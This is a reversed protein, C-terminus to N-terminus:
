LFEGPVVEQMQAFLEERKKMLKSLDTKNVAGKQKFRKFNLMWEYAATWFFGICAYYAFGLWYSPYVFYHFLWIVPLNILGMIIKGMILKVSGWFVKRRFSKEVFRKVLFYPLGCHIFGLLAFPFLWTLNFIEKARSGGPNNAKWFMLNEELRFRKLLKFYGEASNKFKALSENEELSQDNMWHALKQSYKWRQEITLSRDFSDPNMGKRTLMMIQEHFPALQKDQVHTIQDQMMKEVRRTLENIIKNPNEKYEKRYDNLCFKESTSILLGSRMQNPREYNCGVAAVHIKKKWDMAELSNFGIRIAGKKVPKLRRIFVDDTFGEGFILLGRGFSLVRTCKKFIEENKGKTDEGDHQRYIPLMQCAWLFPKSITTFVDSRTMFFVIPMRIAAVGLPDMFSAAHNSVYITRDFMKKPSNVLKLRPYFVRLSYHLTVKLIFYLIRM